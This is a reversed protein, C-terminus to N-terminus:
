RDFINNFLGAKTFLVLGLILALIIIPTKLFNLLDTILSGEVIKGQKLFESLEAETKPYGEMGWPMLLHLATEKTTKLFKNIFDLM